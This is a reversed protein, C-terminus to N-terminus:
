KLQDKFLENFYDVMIKICKIIKEVDYIMTSETEFYIYQRLLNPGITTAINAANMKNVECNQNVKYLFQMIHALVRLNITPLKNLLKKLDNIDDDAQDAIKLYDDYLPFTLLPEPLERLYLKLIGATVHVPAELKSFDVEEGKEFTDKIELIIM